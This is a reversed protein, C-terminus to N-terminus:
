IVTNWIFTLSTQTLTGEVSFQDLNDVFQMAGSSQNLTLVVNCMTNESCNRIVRVM